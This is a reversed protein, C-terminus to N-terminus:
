VRSWANPNDSTSTATLVERRDQLLAPFVRVNIGTQSEDPSDRTFQIWEYGAYLKLPGNTYKALLTVSTDNSITATLVQPLFPPVPNGAPGLPNGSLGISVADIIHTYIADLSLIGKALNPIDGGAQFSYGGNAGNNQAYGGFQWLAAARFQGVDVRYKLSTSVRCDETNGAGCTTGQYGIPSFANSGGM